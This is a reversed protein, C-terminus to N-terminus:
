GENREAAGGGDGEDGWDDLSLIRGEGIRLGDYAVDFYMGEFKPKRGVDGIVLLDWVVILARKLRSWTMQANGNEGVTWTSLLTDGSASHAASIAAGPDTNNHPAAIAFADLFLTYVDQPKIRVHDWTFAVVFRPDDPDIMKGSDPTTIPTTNTSASLLPSSYGGNSEEAPRPRLDFRGVELNKVYLSAYLEYFQNGQAIAMGIKYLGLVGYRVELRSGRSPPFPHLIINTNIDAMEMIKFVKAEWPLNSLVCLLEMTAM